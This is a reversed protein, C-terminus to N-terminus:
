RGNSTRTAWTIGSALCPLESRALAVAATHRHDHITYDHIGVEERARRHERQVTRRPIKFLKERASLGHEEIHEELAVAVWDPVFIEREGAKTKSERIRVRTGDTGRRIDRAELAESEGIRMGTSILLLQQTRFAPRLVDLYRRVEAEGLYEIRDNGKVRGIEPRAQIWGKKIAHSALISVAELKM